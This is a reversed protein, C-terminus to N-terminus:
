KLQSLIYPTSRLQNEDLCVVENGHVSPITEVIQDGRTINIIDSHSVKLVTEGNTESVHQIDSEYFAYETEVDQVDGDIQDTDEVAFFGSRKCINDEADVLGFWIFVPVSVENSFNVYEKFHRLNCRGFWEAQEKTKIEIYAVREGDLLVELDPGDGYLIEDADRADDGHDEVTFGHQNLQNVIIEYGIDHIAYAEKLSRDRVAQVEEVTQNSKELTM